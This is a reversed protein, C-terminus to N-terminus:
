AKLDGLPLLRADPINLNEWIICRIHLWHCTGRALMIIWSLDTDEAQPVLHLESEFYLDLPYSQALASSTQPWRSSWAWRLSPQIDWCHTVSWGMSFASLIAIHFLCLGQCGFQTQFGARRKEPKMIKPSTCFIYRVNNLVCYSGLMTNETRDRWLAVRLWFTSASNWSSLFLAVM